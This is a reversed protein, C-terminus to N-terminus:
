GNISLLALVGIATIDGPHEENVNRAFSRVVSVLETQRRYSAEWCEDKADRKLRNDLRERLDNRESERLLLAGTVTEVQNKYEDAQAADNLQQEALTHNRNELEAIRADRSTLVAQQQSIYAKAEGYDRGIRDKLEVLIKISEAQEKLEAKMKAHVQGLDRNGDRAKELEKRVRVLEEVVEAKTQGAM